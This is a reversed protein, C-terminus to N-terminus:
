KINATNANITRVTKLLNPNDINLQSTGNYIYCKENLKKFSSYRLRFNGLIFKDKDQITYVIGNKYHTPKEVKKIWADKKECIKSKLIVTNDIIKYETSLSMEEWSARDIKLSKSVKEYGLKEISKDMGGNLFIVIGIIVLIFVFGGM